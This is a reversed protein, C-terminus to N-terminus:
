SSENGYEDLKKTGNKDLVIKVKQEATQLIKQAHQILTMGREFQKLSQELDADGKEMQQTLLDIEKLADELSPLTNKKSM